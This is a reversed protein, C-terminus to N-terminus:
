RGQIKDKLEYLRKLSSEPTYRSGLPCVHASTAGHFDTGGTPIVNYKDCRELLYDEQQKNSKSSWVEVGHLLRKELLEDLKNISDYTFPHAMVVIGRCQHLVGIVENVDPQVCSMICSGTKLNFLENWLEGYMKTAYGANMLAQMIHQKYICDSNKAIEKIEDMSVPFLNTVKEAMLLGAQRRNETTKDCIRAIPEWDQPFYCLIHVRRRVNYDYCSIEVGDLVSLGFKDELERNEKINPIHDHDTVAIHTIDAMKARHLLMKKSNTGDSAFTHTHLDGKM